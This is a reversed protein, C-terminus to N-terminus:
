NSSKQIPNKKCIATLLAIIEKTDTEVEKRSDTMFRYLKVVRIAFYFSKEYIVNM